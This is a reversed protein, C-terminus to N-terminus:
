EDEDSIIMRGKRPGGGVIISGNPAAGGGQALPSVATSELDNVADAMVVADGSGGNRGQDGVDQAPSIDTDDPTLSATQGEGIMTTTAGRYRPRAKPPRREQPASTQEADSAQSEAGSSESGSQGSDGGARQSPMLVARRKVQRSGDTARATNNGRPRRRKKTGSARMTGTGLASDVAALATRERLAAEQVFFADIDRGYEEDSDEIFQASKYAERERARATRAKSPQADEDDDEGGSSNSGESVESTHRPRQRQRRRNRRNKRLLQSARKGGLDLPAKEFQEIVALARRLDPLGIGAPIYWELEDVDEDRVHCHVLRFMLKLQPNKTAANAQADTTFPIVYDTTKVQAEDLAVNAEEDDSAADSARELFRRRQAIVVTLTEKVWEILEGQGAEQLAAMAIALQESWSFGKKVSVDQPFRPDADKGGSKQEPEWSSYKKWRNRNKPFLAEILVFSDAEVAKFFQRLIYNILAVLDKYPQDKPFSKHDALVTRFLNLASVQFFLGEAKARVAQRHLLSVVRKMEDPSTFEKYRGLYTLLSQTIDSNAFKLEFSEFTFITEEIVDGEHQARAQQEEEDGEEEGAEVDAHPVGPEEANRARPKKRKPKARKRVYSGEGTTRAWKELMRMVAYALHVGARLFALSQTGDKYARLADLAADLVQGNYVLQQQLLEAAEHLEEGGSGGVDSGSTAMAELLALLQTLCEIGAQLETWLKPKDEVAGNMRKLVWVIWGREIVEGVLGFAWPQESAPAGVEKEQARVALFYELFWKTVFLLRLHDKETIKPRESKIDKLLSALFPNFCSEVFTRALGRLVTRAEPSLDDRRSVEDEKKGKQKLQRKSLDIVAGAASHQSLAQQRHLVLPQSQSSTAPDDPAVPDGAEGQPTASGGTTATKKPNLRVSITTGFRSHRSPANRAFDRRRRDELTLLQRLNQKTQESQESVLNSPRIGRFLLYFIELVLTNSANFMADGHAGAAAALLLELFHAESLARVLRSQLSALEAQDASLHVNAPADAIFALNRVVHLVVSVVQADRAAARSERAASGGSISSARALCPVALALLARLVGPKLLAAKYHLHSQRLETYEAGAAPDQDDRLEDLEKLEEAIDIPWTMAAVLDACALARKDEVHGKGATELLIPVLDNPLVRASWLIRAVTRADDADDKRWFRKLDKLCGYAEDGLRYVGGEYGGLANVVNLIAPELIARRHLYENTEGESADDGTDLGSDTM